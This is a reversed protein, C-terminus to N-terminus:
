EALYKRLEADVPANVLAAGVLRAGVKGLLDKARQADDRRTEGASVTLLVGDVQAALEAADAFRAAPAESESPEIELAAFVRATSLRAGPNVLVVACEPLAAVPSLTEGVGTMHAARGGLCVPVDAGLALGIRRLEDDDLSLRWLTNLAHLAAAADASGGGLGAATPLHKKLTLRAGGGLGAYDALARAARYVLNDEADGALEGARPGEIALELTAGAEARVVDGIAAFAVLSDLTHYGAREGRELRGTIHLYLNLKAAAIRHIVGDPPKNQMAKSPM